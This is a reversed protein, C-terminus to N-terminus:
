TSSDQTTDAPELIPQEESDDAAPEPVPTGEQPQYDPIELDFPIYAKDPLIADLSYLASKAVPKLKIYSVAKVEYYPILETYNESIMEGPKDPNVKKRTRTEQRFSEVKETKTDTTQTGELWRMRRKGNVIVGFSKNRHAIPHALTPFLGHKEMLNALDENHELRDEWKAFTQALYPDGNTTGCGLCQSSVYAASVAPVLDDLDETKQIPAFSHTLVSRLNGVTSAGSPRVREPRCALKASMILRACYLGLHNSKDRNTLWLSRRVILYDLINQVLQSDSDTLAGVRLHCVYDPLDHTEGEVFLCINMLHNALSVVAAESSALRNWNTENYPQLFKQLHKKSRLFEGQDMNALAMYVLAIGKCNPDSTEGSLYKIAGAVRSKRVEPANQLQCAQSIAAIGLFRQGIRNYQDSDALSKSIKELSHFNGDKLECEAEVLNLKLELSRLIREQSFDTITAKEDALTQVLLKRSRSVIEKTQVTDNRYYLISNALGIQSNVENIASAVEAAAKTREDFSVLRAELKNARDKADKAQATAAVTAAKFETARDALNATTMYQTAVHGGFFLTIVAGFVTFAALVFNPLRWEKEQHLHLKENHKQLADITTTLVEEIHKRRKFDNGLYRQLSDVKQSLLEYAGDTDFNEDFELKDKDKSPTTM